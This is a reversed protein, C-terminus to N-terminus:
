ELSGQISKDWTQDVENWHYVGDGPYVVPPEWTWTSTNLTWSAYPQPAYFVDNNRDYTYGPCAFNGRLPRGEPHQNSITRISTQIWAAPDGVAGSDIFAQDAVIVQQVIGNHVQAFHSM